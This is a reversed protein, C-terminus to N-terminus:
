FDFFQYFNFKPAGGPCVDALGACFGTTPPVAQASAGFNTTIQGTVFEAFGAFLASTTIGSCTALLTSLNNKYFSVTHNTADLETIVIDGPAVTPKGTTQVGACDQLGDDEYMYAGAGDMPSTLSFTGIVVAFETSGAGSRSNFTDEWHWKGSTESITSRIGFWTAGQTNAVTLGGNSVTMNAGKDSASWTAYTTAYAVSAATFLLAGFLISLLKTRTKM